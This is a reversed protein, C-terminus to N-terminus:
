TRFLGCVLVTLLIVPLFPLLFGLIPLLVILAVIGFFSLATVALSGVFAPLVPWSGCIHDILLTVSSFIGSMGRNLILGGSAEAARMYVQLVRLIGPCDGIASLIRGREAQASFFDLPIAWAAGLGLTFFSVYLATVTLLPLAIWKATRSLGPRTERLYLAPLLLLVAAGGPVLLWLPPLAGLSGM